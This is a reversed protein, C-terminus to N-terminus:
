RTERSFAANLWRAHIAENADRACKGTKLQGFEDSTHGFSQLSKRGVHADDRGQRVQMEILINPIPFRPSGKFMREFTQTVDRWEAKRNGNKGVGCGELGLAAIEKLSKAVLRVVDHLHFRSGVVLKGKGALFISRQKRGSRFSRPASHPSGDRSKDLQNLFGCLAPFLKPAGQPPFVLRM